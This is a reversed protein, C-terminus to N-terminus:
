LRQHFKPHGNYLRIKKLKKKRYCKKAMTPKWETPMKMTSKACLFTEDKSVNKVSYLSSHRCNLCSRGIQPTVEMRKGNCHRIKLETQKSDEIFVFAPEVGTAAHFGLIGEKCRVRVTNERSAEQSRKRM